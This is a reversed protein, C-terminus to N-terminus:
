ITNMRGLNPIVENMYLCINNNNLNRILNNNDIFVFCKLDYNYTYHKDGYSILIFHSKEENNIYLNNIGVDYNPCYKDFLNRYILGLEVSKIDNVRLIRQTKLLIDYVMNEEMYDISSLVKDIVINNYDKKIYKIKKDVDIINSFSKTEFGGQILYIDMSLDVVFSNDDIILRNVFRGDKSVIIDCVIGFISCLYLYCKALVKSSTKGCSLSAWINNVSKISNLSFFENKDLTVNIDYGVVKGLSIYLYRAIELNNFNKNVSNVIEDVVSQGKVFTAYDVYVYGCESDIRDTFYLNEGNNVLYSIVDVNINKIDVTVYKVNKDLKKCDSLSVVDYMVKSDEM